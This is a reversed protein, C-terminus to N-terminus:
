VFGANRAIRFAPNEKQSKPSHMAVEASKEGRRTVRRRAMANSGSVPIKQQKKRLGPHGNEL